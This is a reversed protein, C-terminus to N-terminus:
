EEEDHVPMGDTLGELTGDWTEAKFAKTMASRAKKGMYSAYETADAFAGGGAKGHKLIVAQITSDHNFFNRSADEVTQVVSDVVVRVSAPLSPKIGRRVPSGPMGRILSKISDWVRDRQEENESGLTIQFNLVQALQDNVADTAIFENLEIVKSNWDQTDMKKVKM